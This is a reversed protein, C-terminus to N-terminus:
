TPFVELWIDGKTAGLAVTLTWCGPKPFNFGTGWELGPREWNSDGHAEPGWVPSILTGDEHRAQATFTGTGTIRWVIKVEEQAHAKGFFVLAWLEGDSHMTGQIESFGTPSTQIPSPQCAAVTATPLPESPRTLATCGALGGMMLIVTLVKPFTRILKLVKNTIFLL